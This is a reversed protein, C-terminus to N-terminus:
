PKTLTDGHVFYNVAVTDRARTFRKTELEKIKDDIIGANVRKAEEDLNQNNMTKNLDRKLGM